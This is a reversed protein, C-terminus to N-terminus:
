EDGPEDWQSSPLDGIEDDWDYPVTRRVWVGPRVEDLYTVAPPEVPGVVEGVVLPWLAIVVAGAAILRWDHNWLGVVLCILATWTLLGTLAWSRLQSM